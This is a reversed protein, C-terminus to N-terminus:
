SPSWSPWPLSFARLNRRSFVSTRSSISFFILSFSPMPASTVASSAGASKQHGRPIGFPGPVIRRPGGGVEVRYFAEAALEVGGGGAGRLAGRAGGGGARLWTVVQEAAVGGVGVGGGCAGPVVAWGAARRRVVSGGFAIRCGFGLVEWEVVLGRGRVWGAGVARRGGPSAARRPLPSLFRGSGGAPERRIRGSTLPRALGRIVQFISRSGRVPGCRVFRTDWRNRRAGGLFLLKAGGPSGQGLRGGRRIISPAHRVGFSTATTRRASRARPVSCGISGAGPAPALPAGSATGIHGCRLSIRANLRDRGASSPFLLQPSSPSRQGFRSRRRIRFPLLWTRRPPSAGRSPCTPRTRPLLPGSVRYAVLESSFTHPTETTSIVRYNVFGLASAHQALTPPPVRVLSCLLPMRPAVPSPLTRAFTTPPPTPAAPRVRVTAISRHIPVVLRLIVRPIRALLVPVFTTPPTPM